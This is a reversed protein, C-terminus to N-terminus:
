NLLLHFSSLLVVSWGLAVAADDNGSRQEVYIPQMPPHQAYMVQQQPYQYPTQYPYSMQQPYSVQPPAHPPAYYVPQGPSLDQHYRCNHTVSSVFRNSLVYTAPPKTWTIPSLGVYKCALQGTTNHNTTPDDDLM